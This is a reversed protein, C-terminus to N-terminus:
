KNSDDKKKLKQILWIIFFTIPIGILGLPTWNPGIAFYFITGLLVISLFALVLPSLLIQLFNKM